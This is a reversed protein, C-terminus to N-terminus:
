LNKKKNDQQDREMQYLGQKAKLDKRGEHREKEDKEEKAHVDARAKACVQVGVLGPQLAGPIRLTLQSM